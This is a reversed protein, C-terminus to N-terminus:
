SFGLSVDAEFWMLAGIGKRGFWTEGMCWVATFEGVCKEIFEQILGSFDETGLTDIDIHIYIYIYM